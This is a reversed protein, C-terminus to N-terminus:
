ECSRPRVVVERMAGLASVIASRLSSGDISQIVIGDIYTQPILDIRLTTSSVMKVQTANHFSGTIQMTSLLNSVPVSRWYSDLVIEISCTGSIQKGPYSVLVAMSSEDKHLSVQSTNNLYVQNMALGLNSFLIILVSLVLNKM